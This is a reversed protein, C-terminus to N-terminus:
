FRFALFYMLFINAVLLVLGSMFQAKIVGNKDDLNLLAAPVINFNAAMPTMLTGCFGSLMGIAGIIAPNAHMQIILIPLAIAATIVPFAAFANGMGTSVFVVGLTALIQPLLAAWSIHDMTHAADKVARKPSAKFMFCVVVSSIIIGIILAMLTANKNEFFSLYPFLFTGILTILPVMLAPIFLKNKYINAHKIEYEKEEKSVEIKAPKLLNFGAILALLIVICGMVFHPLVGALLFTFSYSIWFVGGSIRSKIDKAQNSFSLIGFVLFLIGVIYYLLDLSIM